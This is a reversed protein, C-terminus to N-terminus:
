KRELGVYKMAKGFTDASRILYSQWDAPAFYKLRMNALAHMRACEPSDITAKKLVEHLKAQLSPPLGKPALIGGVSEALEAPADPMVERLRSVSKPDPDAPEGSLLLLTKLRGAKILPVDAVGSSCMQIHGGLLSTVAESDGRYHVPVLKIDLRKALWEVLIHVNGSHGFDGVKFGPNKRVYQVWEGFNKWPADSRVVLTLNYITHGLIPTFDRLDWNVGLTHMATAVATSSIEILTYGDPKSSSLASLAISGVAGPKSLIVVPQGLIKGAETNFSRATVDAPGGPPYGILLTIPRTPFPEDPFAKELSVLMFGFSFVISWLIARGIQPKM